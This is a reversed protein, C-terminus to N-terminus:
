SPTGSQSELHPRIYPTYLLKWIELPISKKAHWLYQVSHLCKLTFKSNSSVIIWPRKRTPNIRASNSIWQRLQRPASPQTKVPKTANALDWVVQVHTKIKKYSGKTKLSAQPTLQQYWKRIKSSYTHSTIWTTLGIIYTFSSLLPDIRTTRREFLNNIKVTFLKIHKEM